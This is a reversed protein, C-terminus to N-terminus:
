DDPFFQKALSDLREAYILKFDYLAIGNGKFCKTKGPEGILKFGGLEKTIPEFLYLWDFGFGNHAWLYNDIRHEKGNARV